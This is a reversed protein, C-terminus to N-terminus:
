RAAGRTSTLDLFVDELDFREHSMEFIVARARAAAAGVVEPTTELAILTEADRAETTIGAARLVGQLADPQPTRIRVASSSQRALEDLPSQLILRGRTIIVVDNVSLAVEALLHSSVLVTGGKDAFARMFQRLRHVGEPDLGNTPEDLILIQPEGLLATALSLRQRMGLSYGGVRRGAAETLGVQALVEEVRTGPLGAATAIVRLHDRARRAPHFSSSELVAGVHRIPQSLERYRRGGITATGASPEVLGLLMRLTTTKGSGNPGLFATVTGERVTFSLEEVAVIDGFRKTLGTVEIASVAMAEQSLHRWTTAMSRAGEDGPCGPFGEDRGERGGHAPCRAPSRRM